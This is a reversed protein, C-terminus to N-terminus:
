YDMVWGNEIIRAACYYGSRAAAPNCGGSNKWHGSGTGSAAKGGYPYLKGDSGLVFDFMDRGYQNPGKEGNVDISISGMTSCLTGGESQLRECHSPNVNATRSLGATYLIVGDSLYISAYQPPQEYRYGDLYKYHIPITDYENSKLIKFYKDFNYRLTPRYGSFPISGEETFLSTDELNDVGDDAMAKRFGNEVVSVAKKLQNVLVIKQYKQILTPITLAAVVGIIGLTILVEALTFAFKKKM